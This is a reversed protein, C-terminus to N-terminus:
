ATQRGFHRVGRKKYVSDPAVYEMSRGLAMALGIIGDIKETAKDKTFKLFGTDNTTGVVNRSMWQLVPNGGHRLRGTIVLRELMKCPANMSAFGQGFKTIKFGDGALQAQLQTSDWRDIAIERINYKKGAEQVAKRIGDYDIVDGHTLSLFGQRAWTVYPVKDRKERNPANAEPVFFFPLVACNHPFYLVFAAVDKNSALDIGAFCEHGALEAPDVDGDCADWQEPVFFAVATATRMNLHLRKFQTERAPSELAKQCERRFFEEPVTVDINPNARRWVAPDTWDESEDTEYIVPLFASDYGPKGPDGPNDRVAKAYKLVDNCFSQRNYDATTAYVIMANVGAATSLHLVEGLKPSKWCHIEDCAAFHVHGGDAIDADAALCQYSSMEDKYYVSRQQTGGMGGYITFREALDDNQKIMGIVHGFVKAAQNRSAAASYLEAGFEHDTAHVLLMMGAVVATKGMKKPLYLLCEKYRRLGDPRKWGFLCGVVGQQWPQLIFPSGAPVTETSKAHKLVKHFFMVAHEAADVDFWCDGATLVPDYGPILKFLKRWKAPVKPTKNAVM